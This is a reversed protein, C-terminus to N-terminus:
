GVGQGYVRLISVRVSARPADPRRVLWEEAREAGLYRLALRARLEADAPEVSAQGSLTLYRTSDEITVSITPSRRLNAAKISKAGVSFRIQEGDLMYWVVTQQISGDANLTAVVAYHRGDLFTRQASNLVSTHSM